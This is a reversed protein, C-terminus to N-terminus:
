AARRDLRERRCSARRDGDHIDVGVRRELTGIAITDRHEERTLGRAATVRSLFTEYFGDLFGQYIARGDESFESTTSLLDANAGRKYTTQTLGLWDYTGGFTLKGGFM